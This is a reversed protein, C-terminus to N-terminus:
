RPFIHFDIPQTNMLNFYPLTSSDCLVIKGQSCSVLLHALLPKADTVSFASLFPFTPGCRCPAQALQYYYFAFPFGCIPFFFFLIYFLSLPFSNPFSLNLFLFFIFLAFFSFLVSPILLWPSFFSLSYSLLTKIVFLVSTNSNM